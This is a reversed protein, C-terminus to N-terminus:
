FLYRILSSLILVLTEPTIWSILITSPVFATFFCKMTLLRTRNQAAGAAENQAAEAVRERLNFFFSGLLSHIYSWTEVLSLNQDSQYNLYIRSTSWLDDIPQDDISREIKRRCYPCTYTNDKCWRGFCKCCMLKDSADKMACGTCPVWLEKDDEACIKCEEGKIIGCEKNNLSAWEGKQKSRLIALELLLTSFIVALCTSLLLACCVQLVSKGVLGKRDGKKHHYQWPYLNYLLILTFFVGFFVWKKVWAFHLPALTNPKFHFAFIKDFLYYPFSAVLSWVISYLKGIRTLNFFLLIIDCVFGLKLLLVDITNRFISFIDQIPYGPRWRVFCVNIFLPPFVNRFMWKLQRGLVYGKLKFTSWNDQFAAWFENTPSLPPAIQAAPLSFQNQIYKEIRTAQEIKEIAEGEKGLMWLLTGLNMLMGWIQEKVDIEGAKQELYLQQLM